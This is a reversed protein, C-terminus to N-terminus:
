NSAAENKVVRGEVSLQDLCFAKVAQTLLKHEIKLVKQQISEPTDDDAVMVTEQMIVPGGDAV